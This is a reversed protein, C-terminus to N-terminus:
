ALLIKKISEPYLRHETEHIKACFTAFDLGEKSFCAQDVITGSDLETSVMHTTVGAVKMESEWSRQLANAGKFLPLLSPHINIAHVAETFVPTLIRMFGALVTLDIDHQQIIQVLQTDFSERDSFRTHDLVTSQLGYKRARAIGKAEPRNTLTLAVEITTDGFRKGHLAQILAELNSGEGSFLIAIRKLSV